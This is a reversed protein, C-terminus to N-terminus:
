GVPGSALKVSASHTQGSLDTWDVKVKDGPHHRDLVGTLATANGVTTGAVSTIVDGRTLGASDAPSGSVVGLVVPGNAQSEGRSGSAAQIGLL